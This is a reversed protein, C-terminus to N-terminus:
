AGVQVLLEVIRAKGKNLLILMPPSHVIEFLRVLLLRVARFGQDVHRHGQRLQSQAGWGFPKEALGVGKRGIM